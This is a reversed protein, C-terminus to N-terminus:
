VARHPGVQRTEPWRRGASGARPAIRLTVPGTLEHASTVSLLGMKGGPMTGSSRHSPIDRRTRASTLNLSITLRDLALSAGYRAPKAKWFATVVLGNRLGTYDLM